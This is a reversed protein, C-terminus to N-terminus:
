SEDICSQRFIKELEDRFASATLPEALRRRQNRKMLSSIWWIQLVAFLVATIALSVSASNWVIQL